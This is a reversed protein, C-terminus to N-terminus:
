LGLNRYFPLTGIQTTQASNRFPGAPLKAQVFWHASCGACALFTSNNSEVSLYTTRVYFPMTMMYDFVIPHTQWPTGTMPVICHPCSGGRLLDCLPLLKAM